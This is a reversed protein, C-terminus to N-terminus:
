SGVKWASDHRLFRGGLERGGRAPSDAKEFFPAIRRCATISALATAPISANLQRVFNSQVAPIPASCSKFALQGSVSRLLFHIKDDEATTQERDNLLIRLSKNM